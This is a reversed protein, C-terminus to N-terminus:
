RSKRCVGSSSETWPGNEISRRWLYELSSDQAKTFSFEYKAPQDQYTGSRSFTWRGGGPGGLYFYSAGTSSATALVLSKLTSSYAYTWATDSNPSSSECVILRKQTSWHCKSTYASATPKKQECAWNGTFFEM